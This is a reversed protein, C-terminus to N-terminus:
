GIAGGIAGLGAGIAPGVGPILSAFPAAARVIGGFGSPQRRKIERQWAKAYTDAEQRAGVAKLGSSALFQDSQANGLIGKQLANSTANTFLDDPDFPSGIGSYQSYDFAM